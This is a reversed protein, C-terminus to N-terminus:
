ARRRRAGQSKAILRASVDLAPSLGTKTSATARGPAASGPTPQSGAAGAPAGARRDRAPRVGPARLRVRRAGVGARPERVPNLSVIVPTTFPLPQLRNICTTCASRRRTARGGAAREYNWAAWAAASRPLLAPTPTCCPATASTASRASCRASTPARRRGAAGAVPRQPLGDRRRRLARTGADTTSTPAAAPAPAARAAGAHEPARRRDGRRDERVYSRAGGRVTYGSRGTRQGAAPRPQPLLPDADRGPLAADARGPVVLHLRDDAPLVLRPVRRQLPARRLFDGIPQDLAADGAGRTARLATALPQLAAPRALMRWFRPRLLNRASRSCPTWAQLREVGAGHRAPGAGLVVHGVGRDRRRARRVPAILNPYTRENFVLFGTDVGHTAGDLTVDVTHAHGGFYDAAEFLTVRAQGRLRTRSRWAPSAPASSPSGGCRRGATLAPPPPRRARRGEARLLVDRLAGPPILSPPPLLLVARPNAAPMLRRSRLSFRDPDVVGSAPSRALTRRNMCRVAATPPAGRRM